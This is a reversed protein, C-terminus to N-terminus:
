IQGAPIGLSPNFNAGGNPSISSFDGNRYALTPVTVNFSLLSSERFQELSFFFFSRQKGNIKFPIPGGFTGGFDNRRNRPRVRNGAGNRPYAFGANLVENVFYDYASGHYQMTGWKM